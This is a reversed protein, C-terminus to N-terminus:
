FFFYPRYKRCPMSAVEKCIHCLQLVPKVVAVTVCRLIGSEIGLSDYVASCTFYKAIEYKGSLCIYVFFWMVMASAEM